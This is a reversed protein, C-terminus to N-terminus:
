RARMEKVSRITIIAEISELANVRLYRKGLSNVWYSFLLAEVSVFFLIGGLQSVRLKFCTSDPTFDMAFCSREDTTFMIM